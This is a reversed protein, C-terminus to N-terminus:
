HVPHTGPMKSPSNNQAKLRGTSNLFGPWNDLGRKTTHGRSNPNPVRLGCKTTHGRSNPNPVRLGRKTTQGRSNPNPVRLGRINHNPILTTRRSRMPLQEIKFYTRMVAGMLAAQVGNYMINIAFSQTVVLLLIIIGMTEITCPHLVEKCSQIM